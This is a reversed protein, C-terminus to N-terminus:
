AVVTAGLKSFPFCMSILSKKSTDFTTIKYQVKKCYNGLSRKVNSYYFSLGNLCKTAKARTKRKKGQPRNYFLNFITSIRM